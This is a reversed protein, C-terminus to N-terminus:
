IKQAGTPILSVWVNCFESMLFQYPVAVRTKGNLANRM